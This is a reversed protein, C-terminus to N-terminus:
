WCCRGKGVRWGIRMLIVVFIVMGSLVLLSSLGASDVLLAAGYALAFVSVIIIVINALLM